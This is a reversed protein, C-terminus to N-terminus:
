PFTAGDDPHDKLGLSLAAMALRVHLPIRVPREDEFRFGREYLRITSLGLGLAEGAARQSLRLRKRWAKFQKPTM